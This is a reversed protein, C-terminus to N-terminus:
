RIHNHIPQQYATFLIIDLVFDNRSAFLIYVVVCRTARGASFPDLGRRTSRGLQQNAKLSRVTLQHHRRMEWSRATVMTGTGTAVTALLLALWGKSRKQESVRCSRGPVKLTIGPKLSSPRLVTHERWSTNSKSKCSHQLLQWSHRATRSATTSHRSTM